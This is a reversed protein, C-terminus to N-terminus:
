PGTQATGHSEDDPREPTTEVALVTFRAYCWSEADADWWAEAERPLLVGGPTPARSRIPTRWRAVEFGDDTSRLQDDSRFEELAGSRDFHLEAEVVYGLQDWRVDVRRSSRPIWELDLELLGAPALLVLDNLFTVTESRAMEEGGVRLVPVLGLARVEMTAGDPGYVHYVEVPILGRRVQLLFLRRPPSLFSHQEASGTMYPDGAGNRIAAGFRARFGTIRPRGVVGVGEMWRAVAKPLGQLDAETVMPSSLGPRARGADVAASTDTRYRFALSGPRWESPGLLLFALILLNPLTGVQADSWVTFVLIQSLVVGVLTVAWAGTTRTGWLVGGATLLLAASLFLVGMAPSISQRLGAMEVWGFARSAGLLHLLGHLAILLALAVHM